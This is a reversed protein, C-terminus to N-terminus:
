SAEVTALTPLLADYGRFSYSRSPSTTAGHAELFGAECADRIVNKASTDNLWPIAEVCDKRTFLELQQEAWSLFSQLAPTYYSHLITTLAVQRALQYDEPEAILRGQEDRRRQFMHLRTSAQTLYILRPFDRRARVTGTPFQKAIEASFPVVVPVSAEIQSLAERWPKVIPEVNCGGLTGDTAFGRAHSRLIAKTQEQSENMRYEFHRTENEPHWKLDTM